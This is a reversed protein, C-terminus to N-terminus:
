GTSEISSYCSMDSDDVVQFRLKIFFFFFHLGAKGVLIDLYVFELSQYFFFIRM